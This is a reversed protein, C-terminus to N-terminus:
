RLPTVPIVGPLRRALPKSIEKAQAIAKRRDFEAATENERQMLAESPRVPSHEVVEDSGEDGEAYQTEPPRNLRELREGETEGERPEDKVRDAWNPKDDGEAGLEGRSAKLGPNEDGGALGEGAASAATDNGPATRPAVAGGDPEVAPKNGDKEREHREKEAQDIVSAAAAAGAIGSGAPADANGGTQGPLPATNDERTGLGEVNAPNGPEAGIKQNNSQVPPLGTPGLDQERGAKDENKNQKGAM